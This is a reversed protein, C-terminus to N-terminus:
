RCTYSYFSMEEEKCVKRFFLCISGTRKPKEDKVHQQIAAQKTSSVAPQAQIIVSGTGQM